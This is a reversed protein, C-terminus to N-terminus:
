HVEMVSGLLRVMQQALQDEGALQTLWNLFLRPDTDAGEPALDFLEAGGGKARCIAAGAAVAQWLIRVDM